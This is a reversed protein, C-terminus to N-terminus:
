GIAVYALIFFIKGSLGGKLLKIAARSDRCWGELPGIIELPCRKWQVPLNTLPEVRRVALWQLLAKCEYPLTPSSRFAVGLELDALPTYTIPCHADSDGKYHVFPM